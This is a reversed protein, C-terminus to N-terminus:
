TSVSIHHVTCKFSDKVRPLCWQSTGFLAGNLVMWFLHALSTVGLGLYDGSICKSRICLHFLGPYHTNIKATVTYQTHTLTVVCKQEDSRSVQMDFGQDCCPTWVCLCHIEFGARTPLAVTYSTLVDSPTELRPTTGCVCLDYVTIEGGRGGNRSSGRSQADEWGELYRGMCGGM